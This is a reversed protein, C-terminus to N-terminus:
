EVLRWLGALWNASVIVYRSGDFVVVAQAAGISMSSPAPASVWGSIGPAPARQEAADLTCKGCAWSWMSYVNAPTGFVTAQNTTSGVHAWTQGFDTSRVVGWGSASYLGAMFVVGSTDPQYIQSNGHPHENSDVRTWSAGGNTTRWTGVAGGSAQALWLWTNATTSANGTNIFFIAATGGNQNMGGALPVNTWTRGGDTSQVLLNMEHGAMLLHNGNYPDVVPPYFDQRSGGPAVNFNTWSVGGDTSKWFGMGTGRIGASYLIPPQGAPGPAIAIGGAGKAGAGGGGTNIPGSWTQGFDTSKWIGQCDFHTYLNSPRAPDAVVTITGFNGCDLSNTLDVGPPTVNTWALPTGGSPPPSNSNNTLAFSAVSALGGVSATVTYSGTTGNATLTPATAIGSANTVAQATASGSFLASAGSAPATFTVTVGGVPNLMTDRVLAQLSTAFATGVTTSQPTGGSAVITSLQGPGSVDFIRVNTPATPAPTSSGGTNTMSFMAASGVGSVTATVTFGGGVANAKLTPAIALGNNDTVASAMTSGAFTGSPGSAPAAFTVTVGPVGNTASDRVVAVLAVQYNTNVATSQPTGTWAAITAPLGAAIGVSSSSNLATLVAATALFWLRV